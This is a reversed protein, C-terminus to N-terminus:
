AREGRVQLEQQILDALAQLGDRELWSFFRVHEEGPNRVDQRQSTITLSYGNAPSRVPTLYAHLSFDSGQLLTTRAKM